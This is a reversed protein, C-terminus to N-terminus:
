KFRHSTLEQHGYFLVMSLGGVGLAFCIIHDDMALDRERRRRGFDMAKEEVILGVNEECRIEAFGLIKLLNTKGKEGVWNDVVDM